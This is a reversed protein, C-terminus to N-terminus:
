RSDENRSRGYIRQQLQDIEREIADIRRNRDLLVERDIRKAMEAWVRRFEEDNQALDLEIRALDKLLTKYRDDSVLQNVAIASAVRADTYDRGANSIGWSIGSSMMLLVGALVAWKGRGDGAMDTLTSGNAM